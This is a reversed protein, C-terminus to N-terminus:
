YNVTLNNTVTVAGLNSCRTTQNVPMTVVGFADVGFDGNVGNILVSDVLVNSIGGVEKAVEIVAALILPSGIPRSNVYDFIAQRVTALVEALSAVTAIYTGNTDVSLSLVISVVESGHAYVQTGGARWKGGTLDEQFQQLVANNPNAVTAGSAVTDGVVGDTVALNVVTLPSTGGSSLVQGYYGHGAGDNVTVYALHPFPVANVVPITANSGVAPILEPSTTTTDAGLNGSGDDCYLQVMGRLFTSGDTDTNDLAACSLIGPYTLAAAKLAAITGQSSNPIAELARARLGGNPSDDQEVDAGGSIPIVNTVSYGSPGSVVQNIAGAIQDGISGLTVCVCNALTSLTEGVQLTAISTLRYVSPPITPDANQAAVLTGVPFVVTAVAPGTQSEFQICQNGTAATAQKRFVGVDAAKYDLATGTATLIFAANQVMTLLEYAGTIKGNTVVSADSGLAMAGSEIYTKSVGGDNYNTILSGLAETAAKMSLVLDATTPFTPLPAFTPPTFSV